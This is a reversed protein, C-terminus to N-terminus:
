SNANSVKLHKLQNFEKIKKDKLDGSRQGHFFLPDLSTFALGFVQVLRLRTLKLDM